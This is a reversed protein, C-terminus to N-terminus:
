ALKVRSIYDFVGKIDIFLEELVKKQNWSKHVNDVM